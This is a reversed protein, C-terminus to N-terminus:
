KSAEMPLLHLARRLCEAVMRKARHVRVQAAGLSIDLAIVIDEFDLDDLYRLCLIQRYVNPLSDICHRVSNKVQDQELEQLPDPDDSAVQEFFDVPEGNKAARMPAPIIVSGRERWYTVVEHYAIRYLWARFTGESRAFRSQHNRATMQLKVFVEEAVDAADDGAGSRAAYKVLRPFYRSYLVGLAAPMSYYLEMLDEDSAGDLNPSSEM